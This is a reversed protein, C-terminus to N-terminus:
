DEYYIVVSTIDDTSGLSLATECLTQAASDTQMHKHTIECLQEENIFNSVGDSCLVVCTKGSLELKSIDPKVDPSVGVAKTIINKMKHVLAEAETIEGSDILKQVFSHDKTKFIVKKDKIVFVKSDGIHAILARNKDICLMALTAGMGEYEPKEKAREIIQENATNVASIVAKKDTAALHNKLTDVVIASAVDGACHGGMGDAVAYINIVSDAYDLYSDQNTAHKTGTISYSNSKILNIVEKFLCQRQGSSAAHPM